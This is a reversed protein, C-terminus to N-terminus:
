FKINKLLNGFFWAFVIMAIAVMYITNALFKIGKYFLEKSM